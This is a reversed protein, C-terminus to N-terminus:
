NKFRSMAHWFNLALVDEHVDDLLKQFSTGSASLRRQLTRESTEFAPALQELTPEGFSLRARTVSRIRGHLGEDTPAESIPSELSRLLASVYGSLLEFLVPDAHTFPLRALSEAFVFGTKGALFELNHTGCVRAVETVRKPAAHAFLVREPIFPDGADAAANM